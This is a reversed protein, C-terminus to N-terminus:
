ESISFDGDDKAELSRYEDSDESSYKTTTSQKSKQEFLLLSLLQGSEEEEDGSVVVKMGGATKEDSQTVSPCKEECEKHHRSPATNDHIDVSSDPPNNTNSTETTTIKLESIDKSALMLDLQLKRDSVSSTPQETIVSQQEHQQVTAQNTTTIATEDEESVSIYRCRDSLLSVPEEDEEAVSSFSMAREKCSLKPSTASGDRIDKGVNGTDMTHSGLGTLVRKGSPNSSVARGIVMTAEAADAASSNTTQTEKCQSVPRNISLISSSSVLLIM